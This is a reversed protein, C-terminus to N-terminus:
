KGLTKELILQWMLKLNFAYNQDQPYKLTLEQWANRWRGLEELSLNYERCLELNQPLQQAELTERHVKTLAFMEDQKKQFQQAYKLNGPHEYQLIALRHIEVDNEQNAIKASHIHENSPFAGKICKQAGLSETGICFFAFVLFFKFRNLFFM